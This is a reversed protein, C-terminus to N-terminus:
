CRAFDSRCRRQRPCNPPVHAADGIQRHLWVSMLAAHAEMADQALPRALTQERLAADILASLEAQAGADRVRIQCPTQLLRLSTAAPILVAHGLCQRGLELAMLAGAPVFIANHPGLGRRRGDLLLKGQGRTIWILAHVDRDHALALRWDGGKSLQALSQVQLNTDSM